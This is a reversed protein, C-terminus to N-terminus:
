EQSRLFLATQLSALSLDCDASDITQIPIRLACWLQDRRHVGGGHRPPEDNRMMVATWDQDDGSMRVDLHTDVPTVIAQLPRPDAPTCLSIWADDSHADSRYVTLEGSHIDANVYASPNILPHLELVRAAGDIGAPINLAHHIRKAALGAIGILSRTRVDRATEADTFKQVAHGFALSLLHM